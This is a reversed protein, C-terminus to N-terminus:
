FADKFAVPTLELAPLSEVGMAPFCFLAAIMLCIIKQIKLASDKKLLFKTSKMM